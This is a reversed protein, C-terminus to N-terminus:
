QIFKYSVNVIKTNNLVSDIYVKNYKIFLTDNSKIYIVPDNVSLTDNFFLYQTIYKEPIDEPGLHWCFKGKMVSYGYHYTVDTKADEHVKSIIKASYYFPGTETYTTCSVAFFVFSLLLILTKM